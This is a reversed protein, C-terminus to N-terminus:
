IVHAIAEVVLWVMALMGVLIPVGTFVIVFRRVRVVRADSLERSQILYADM